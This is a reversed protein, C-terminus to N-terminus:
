IIGIEKEIGLRIYGVAALRNYIYTLEDVLQKKNM